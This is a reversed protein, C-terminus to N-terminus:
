NLWSDYIVSQMKDMKLLPELRYKKDELLKLSLGGYGLYTSYDLPKATYVYEFIDNLSTGAILECAMQFEADTFGRKKTQYFTKYLYQMVNDLSKQNNTNHRICFDLLLGVIPGKDYYSISKNKDPGATGFPGDQWTFYSAQTLSQFNKGPGNEFATINKDFSSLLAKDTMIGARKVMLYEYYVSLGESVWLLNTKSGADYNFPGLEFPRIRKVNYNHFFEHALFSMTRNLGTETDLSKGDFSITTNNLHEIGGRGPGIGIFTYETYPIDGIINVGAKIVKSLDSIFKEKNFNGLNYGIFRHKIDNIYFPQLEELNGILIPSDFLIDYNAARFTHRTNTVNTLSTAINSWNKPKLIQISPSISLYNEPYLFTACPIIYARSTDVYNNAVFKKTAKINYSIIIKKCNIKKITWSNITPNSFPISNNNGDKIQVDSIDNAYNMIQYYGPMWQPMKYTLDGAKPGEITMEIHMKNNVAEAFSVKYHIHLDTTQAFLKSTMIAYFFLVYFVKEM